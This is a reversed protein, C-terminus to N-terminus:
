ASLAALRLVSLLDPRASSTLAYSVRPMEWFFLASVISAATVIAQLQWVQPCIYIDSHYESTTVRAIAVSRCAVIHHSRRKDFFRFSVNM